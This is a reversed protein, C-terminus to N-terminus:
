LFHKKCSGYIFFCKSAINSFLASNSIFTKGQVGTSSALFYKIKSSSVTFIPVFYKKVSTSISVSGSNSLKSIVPQETDSLKLLNNDLCSFNDATKNFTSCETVSPNENVFWWCFQAM